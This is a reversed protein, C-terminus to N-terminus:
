QVVLGVLEVLIALALLTLTRKFLLRKHALAMDNRRLDVELDDLLSKEFDGTDEVQSARRMAALSPGTQKASPLLLTHVALGVSLGLLVLAVIWLDYAGGADIVILALAAAVPMVGLAGAELALSKSVRTQLQSATVMRLWQASEPKTPKASM